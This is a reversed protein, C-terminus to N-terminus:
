ELHFGPGGGFGFTLLLPAPHSTDFFAELAIRLAGSPGQGQMLTFAARIGPVGNVFDYTFQMDLSGQGIMGFGFEFAAGGRGDYSHAAVGLDLGYVLPIDRNYELSTITTTTTTLTTKTSVGLIESYRASSRGGLLVGLRGGYTAGLPFWQADGYIASGGQSLMRMTLTVGGLTSDDEIMNGDELFPPKMSLRGGFDATVLWGPLTTEAHVDNSRMAALSMTLATAMAVNRMRSYVGPSTVGSPAQANRRASTVTWRPAQDAERERRIAERMPVEDPLTRALLRRAATAVQVSAATDRSVLKAGPDTYRSMTAREFSSSLVPSDPRAPAVAMVPPQDLRGRRLDRAKQGHRDDKAQGRRNAVAISPGRRNSSAGSHDSNGSDTLDSNGSGPLADNDIALM